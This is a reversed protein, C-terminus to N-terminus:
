SQASNENPFIGTETGQEDSDEHHRALADRFTAPKMSLLRAVQSKNGNARQMAWMVLERETSKMIDHFNVERPIQNFLRASSIRVELPIDKVRIACDSCVTVLKEVINKMETLNGPWPYAVLYKMAEPHVRIAHHPSFFELFHNILTPIDARRERIPPLFLSIVNVHFYFEPLFTGDKMKQKLDTRATGIIRLFTDSTEAAQSQDLLWHMMEAQVALPMTDINRLCLTGGAALKLRGHSTDDGFLRQLLQEKSAHRCNLIIFPRYRRNSQLHITKALSVTGSGGEGYLMVNSNSEAITPILDMIERIQSNKGIFRYFSLQGIGLIESNPDSNRFNETSIKTRLAKLRDLVLILEQSLFPKEIYDYAGFRMAEIATEINAYATMVVVTMHPYRAKVHKLFEIGSMGPMRLDTILVEFVENELLQLGTLPSDVSVVDYNAELLDDRLTLRKLKEDDVILIKV